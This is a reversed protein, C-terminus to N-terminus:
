LWLSLQYVEFVPTVYIPEFTEPHAAAWDCEVLDADGSCVFHSASWARLNGLWTDYSTLEGRYHTDRSFFDHHRWDLEGAINVYRVRNTYESGYLAYSLPLGSYAIRSGEVHNSLWAWGDAVAGYERRYVAGRFRFRHVDVRWLGLGGVLWAVACVGILTRRLNRGTLCQVREGVQARLLTWITVGAAVLVIAIWLHYYTYLRWIFGTANHDYSVIVSQLAALPLLAQTLVSTVSQDVLGRAWIIAFVIWAVAGILSFRVGAALIGISIPTTESYRMISYPTRLYLLTSATAVLGVLWLSRARDVQCRPPRSSRVLVSCGLALVAAGLLPLVIGYSRVLAMVWKGVTRPDGMRNWLVIDHWLPSGAGVMIEKGLVTVNLPYVPNGTYWLNRLYWFGGTLLVCLAVTLSLRSAKLWGTERRQLVVVVLLACGLVVAYAPGSYKIGLHLGTALGFSTAARADPTGRFRVLHALALFFLAASALDWAPDMSEMLAVPSLLIMAAVTAGLGIPCGLKMLLYTVALGALGWIALCSLGMLVDSQLPLFSWLLLLEGNGPFYSNALDAHPLYFPTIASSQFWDVVMPMHYALTDFMTSPEALSGIALVLVICLLAALPGACDVPRTRYVRRCARAVSRALTVLRRATDRPRVLLTLILVCLLGALEHQWRLLGLVGLVTQGVVIISLSFTVWDMLLDAAGCYTRKSPRGGVAWLLAIAGVLANLVTFLMWRVLYSLM